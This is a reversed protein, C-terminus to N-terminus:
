GSLIAVHDLPSNRMGQRITERHAQALKRGKLAASHKARWVSDDARKQAAESMKQRTARSVQRGVLHRADRKPMHTTAEEFWGEKKALRYSSQSKDIWEQKTAFKRAEVLVLEKTWERQVTGLSGGTSTNLLTWGEARYKEIWKKEAAVASHPDGLGSALTLHKFEHCVRMHDFVPGRCMHQGYRATPLFTLGIYANHDAFEYAYVTYDGAYPNAKPVMHATVQTFVDPRNSASQYAAADKSDRSRKWDGKHQYKAAVAILENDTWKHHKEMHLAHKQFFGPYSLACHYLSVKGEKMLAQGSKAWEKRTAYKKVDLALEEESYTPKAGTTQPILIEKVQKIM